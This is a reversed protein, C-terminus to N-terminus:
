LNDHFNAFFKSETRTFSSCCTLQVNEKELLNNRRIKCIAFCLWDRMEALWNGSRDRAPEVILFSEPSIEWRGNSSSNRSGDSMRNKWRRQEMKSWMTGDRKLDHRGILFNSSYKNIWEDERSCFAQSDTQSQSFQSSIPIDDRM